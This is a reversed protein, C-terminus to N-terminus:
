PARVVNPHVAPHVSETTFAATLRAADDHQPVHHLYRMTTQIDAHGMWKQIKVLDVGARRCRGSRTGCHRPLRDPRGEHAPARARRGDLAAYFADRVVDDSLHGGVANCFVLDGPGTVHERRSLGDLAVMAQDSLPVSRSATRSRRTEETAGAPLNRRVHLIRNAFDVHQWRLALLEGQRLGTFAAVQDDGRASRRRSSRAVAHVQEVTSCTSSTAAVSTVREANAAPNAAIWGKRKARGLIGGLLIM